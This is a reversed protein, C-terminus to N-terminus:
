RLVGYNSILIIYFFGEFTSPNKQNNTFQKNNKLEKM